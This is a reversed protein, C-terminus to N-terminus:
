NFDLLPNDLKKIIIDFDKGFNNKMFLKMNTTGMSRNCQTCLPILNDVDNIGGDKESIIHSIECNFVTIINDCCICKGEINKFYKTWVKNKISKPISKKKYKNTENLKTLEDIFNKENTQIKQNIMQKENKYKKTLENLQENLQNKLINYSNIKEAIYSKKIKIITNDSTIMLDTMDILNNIETKKPITPESLFSLIEENKINNQITANNKPEEERHTGRRAGRKKREVLKIDVPKIEQEINNEEIKTNENKKIEDEKKKLEEEKKKLEEEKKINEKKKIEDEKKKLEEEKKKLEEEKAENVNNKLKRKFKSTSLKEKIISLINKKKINNTQYINKIINKDISNINKKIDVGDFIYNKYFYKLCITLEPYIDYETCKDFLNKLETNIKLEVNNLHLVYILKALIITDINIDFIDKYKNIDKDIIFKEIETTDYKNKIKSYTHNIPKIDNISLKEFYNQVGVRVDIKKINKKLLNIIKNFIDNEKNDGILKNFYNINDKVTLRNILLKYKFATINISLNYNEM